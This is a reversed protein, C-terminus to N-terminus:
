IRPIRAIRWNKMWNQSSEWRNRMLCSVARDRHLYFRLLTMSDALPEVDTGPSPPWLNQFHEDDWQAYWLSEECPYSRFIYLSYWPSLTSNFHEDHKWWTWRKEYLLVIDNGWPFIFGSLGPLPHFRLVLTETPLIKPLCVLFSPFDGHKM